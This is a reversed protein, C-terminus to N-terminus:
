AAEQSTGPIEEEQKEMTNKVFNEVREYASNRQDLDPSYKAFKVQDAEELFSCSVEYDFRVIDENKLKDIIETTTYELAYMMFRLAMYKRLIYSLRTYYGEFDGKALLDENYLDLLEELAIEHPPRIIKFEEHETRRRIVMIVGLVFIAMFLLPIIIFPILKGPQLPVSVPGKIDKITLDDPNTVAAVRIIASESNLTHKKGSPLVVMMPVPPVMIDGTIYTTIKYKFDKSVMGRTKGKGLARNISNLIKNGTGIEKETEGPFEYDRILFGGLEAGPQPMAISSGEPAEITMTYNIIDGVRIISKDTSTRITISKDGELMGTIGPIDSVNVQKPNEQGTLICPLLLFFVAASIVSKHSPSLMTL